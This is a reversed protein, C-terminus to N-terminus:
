RVQWTDIIIRIAVNGAQETFRSLDIRKPHYRAALANNEQWNLYRLRWGDQTVVEDETPSAIFRRGNRDVAVGQLWERLGAIPLPWGLTDATLADVDAATREMKGSQRMTAVAPTVEIIAITQGLPSLLSVTTQASTQNWAFSGHLAEEKDGSQYRVSLRGTLDITDHLSRTAVIESERPSKHNGATPSISACGAILLSLAGALARRLYFPRSM